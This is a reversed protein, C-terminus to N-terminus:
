MQKPRKEKLSTQPKQHIVKMWKFKQTKREWLLIFTNLKTKNKKEIKISNDEESM